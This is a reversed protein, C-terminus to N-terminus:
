HFFSSILTFIYWHILLHILGYTFSIATEQQSNVLSLLVAQNFRHVWMCYINAPSFLPIFAQICWYIFSHMFTHWLGTELSQALEAPCSWVIPQTLNIFSHIHFQIFLLIFSQIGAYLAHFYSLMFVHYFHIGSHICRVQKWATSESLLVAECLPHKTEEMHRVISVDTAESKMFM